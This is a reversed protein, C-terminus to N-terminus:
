DEQALAQELARLTDIFLELLESRNVQHIKSDVDLLKLATEANKEISLHLLEDM